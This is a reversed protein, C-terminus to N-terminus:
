KPREIWWQVMEGPNFCAPRQWAGDARTGAYSILYVNGFNTIAVVERSWKDPDADPPDDQRRWYIFDSEFTSIKELSKAESETLPFYKSNDLLDSFSTIMYRLEEAAGENDSTLIKKAKRLLDLINQDTPNSGM